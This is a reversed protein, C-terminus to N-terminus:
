PFSMTGITLPNPPAIPSDLTRSDRKTRRALCLVSNQIWPDFIPSALRIKTATILSHSKLRKRSQHLADFKPEIGLATPSSPRYWTVMRPLSARLVPWPLVTTCLFTGCLSKLPHSAQFTTFTDVNRHLTKMVLDRRVKLISFKCLSVSSTAHASM